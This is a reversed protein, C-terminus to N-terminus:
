VGGGVGQEGVLGGVQLRVMRHLEQGGRHLEVDVHGVLQGLKALVGLAQLDRHLRGRDVGRTDAELHALAADVVGERRDLPHPPARDLGQDLGAAVPGELIEGAERAPEVRAHQVLAGQLVEHRGPGHVGDLRIAGPGAGGDLRHHLQGLPGRLRRAGADVVHEAPDRGGVDGQPHRGVVGPRHGVLQLLFVVRDAEEQRAMGQVLVAVEEALEPDLGPGLEAPRDPGAGGAHAAHRGRDEITGLAPGLGAVLEADDDERVLGPMELRDDEGFTEALVALDELRAPRQYELELGVELALVHAGADHGGLGEVHRHGAM